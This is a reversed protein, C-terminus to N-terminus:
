TKKTNVYQYKQNSYEYLASFKGSLSQLSEALLNTDDALQLLCFPDMFDSQPLRKLCEAMDSIYYSFLNASSKRGQTVGYNSIIEEGIRDMSLKPVYTTGLYLNKIASVM